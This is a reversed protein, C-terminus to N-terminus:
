KSKDNEEEKKATTIDLRASSKPPKLDGFFSHEIKYSLEMSEAFIEKGDIFVQIKDWTCKVFEKKRKM